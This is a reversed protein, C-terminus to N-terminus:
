KLKLAFNEVKTLWDKRKKDTSNDILGFKFWKVKKVGSIKLTGRILVHKVPKRLILRYVLKPASMTTFIAAGKLHKLEPKIMMKSKSFAFGPLFVKDIFGKLVAPMSTWWVPFVFILYDANKIRNQYETVKPDTSTGESYQALSEKNLVPDFKEANLDLVDIDHKAKKLGNELSELVAHNFSKEYPHAYVILVRM